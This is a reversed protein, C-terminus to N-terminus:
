FPRSRIPYVLKPFEPHSLTQLIHNAKTYYTISSDYGRYQLIYERLLAELLGGMNIKGLFEYDTMHTDNVFISFFDEDSAQGSAFKMVFRQIVQIMGVPLAKIPIAKLITKIFSACKFASMAMISCALTLDLIVILKADVLFKLHSEVSENWNHKLFLKSIRHLLEDESTRITKSTFNLITEVENVLQKIETDSAMTEPSM